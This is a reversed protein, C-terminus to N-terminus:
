RILGKPTAKISYIAYIEIEFIDSVIFNMYVIRRASHEDRHVTFSKHQFRLYLGFGNRAM